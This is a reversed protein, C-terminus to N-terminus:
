NRNQNQLRFYIPFLVNFDYISSDMSFPIFFIIIVIPDSDSCFQSPFDLLLPNELCVFLFFCFMLCFLYFCNQFYCNKLFVVCSSFSNFRWLMLYLFKLNFLVWSTPDLSLLSLQGSKEKLQSSDAIFPLSIIYVRQLLFTHYRLETPGPLPIWGM